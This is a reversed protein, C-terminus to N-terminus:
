ESPVRVTLIFSIHWKFMYCLTCDHEWQLIMILFNFYNLNLKVHGICKRTEYMIKYECFIIQLFFFVDHLPEELNTESRRKAHQCHMMKKLSSAIFAFIRLM